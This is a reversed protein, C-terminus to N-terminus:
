LGSGAAADSSDHSPTEHLAETFGALDAPMLVALAVALAPTDGLAALLRATTISRM